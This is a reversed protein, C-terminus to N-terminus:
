RDAEIYIKAMRWNRSTTTLTQLSALGRMAVNNTPLNTATNGEQTTGDTLNDIRWYITTGQPPTYIYFDYLKAVTFAMNTNTISQTVGDRTM